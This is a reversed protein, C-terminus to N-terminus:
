RTSFSGRILRAGSLSCDRSAPKAAGNRNAGAFLNM